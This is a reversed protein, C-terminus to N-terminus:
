KFFINITNQYFQSGLKEIPENKVASIVDLVQRINMPENRSKIMHDPKWKEKKVTPFKNEESIYKYGAHTPRIECWPCDTELMIKDSPIEKVTNLNEETKLSCGNLGIYYGLAIFKKADEISGDFSHVVGTSNYNSLITYLDTAANRCHLFLPLKLSENLKLQQEFYKIQTEKACFNLRDYDLGCEGIAVVKDRNEKALNELGELYTVPDQGNSEFESCRTPHCGVTAYLREDTRAIQIARRSEDLNGATIILKDLSFEFSRKLVHELDPQHKKSGNYLGEFMPDTLNAGIDIFKRIWGM